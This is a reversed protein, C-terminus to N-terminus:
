EEAEEIAEVENNIGELKDDEDEIYGSESDINSADDTPGLINDDNMMAEEITMMGVDPYQLLVHAAENMKKNVEVEDNRNMSLDVGVVANEGAAQSKQSIIMQSMPMKQWQTRRAYALTNLKLM